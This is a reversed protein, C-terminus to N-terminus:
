RRSARSKRKVIGYVRGHMRPIHLPWTRPVLTFIFRLLHAAVMTVLRSKLTCEPRSRALPRVVPLVEEAHEKSFFPVPIFAFLAPFYAALFIALWIAVRTARTM